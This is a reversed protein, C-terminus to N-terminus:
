NSWSCDLVSYPLVDFLLLDARSCNGDLVWEPGALLRLVDLDRGALLRLFRSTLFTKPVFITEM